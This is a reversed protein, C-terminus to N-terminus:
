QRQLSGICQKKAFDPTSILSFYREISSRERNGFPLKGGGGGMFPSYMSETHHLGRMLILFIEM